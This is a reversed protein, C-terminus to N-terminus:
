PPTVKNLKDQRVSEVNRNERKVTWRQSGPDRPYLEIPQAIIVAFEKPKAGKQTFVREDVKFPLDVGAQDNPVPQVPPMAAQQRAAREIRAQAEPPLVPRMAQAQPQARHRAEVHGGGHRHNRPGQQPNAPAPHTAAIEEPPQPFEHGADDCLARLSRRANFEERYTELGMYKYASLDGTVPTAAEIVSKVQPTQSWVINESQAKTVQTMHDVFCDILDKIEHRKRAEGSSAVELTKGIKFQVAGLGLPKGGGLRHQRGLEQTADGLTLAWLIGGLEIPSLNFFRLNTKFVTNASLPKLETKINDGVGPPVPQSITTSLVPWQKLQIEPRPHRESPRYAAFPEDDRYELSDQRVYLGFYSAKPALLPTPKINEVPTPTVEAYAFDFSARRRLSFADFDGAEGGKSGFILSAFDLDNYKNPQPPENLKVIHAKSSNALMEHTSLPMALKFMQATGIAKIKNSEELYFVPVPEGKRYAERWFAWNPNAVSKKGTDPEHILLFDRWVDSDVPDSHYDPGLACTRDPSHFVFERAKSRLGTGDAAKGTIVLTGPTTGLASCRVYRILGPSHPHNAVQHVNIALALRTSLDTERPNIHEYRENADARNAAFDRAPGDTKGIFAKEIDQYSIRAVQCPIIKNQGSKDRVLWGPKSKTQIPPGNRGGGMSMRKRYHITATASSTLNRFSFRRDQIDPGLKAFTVKDLIARIAGQLSTDPIVYVGSPLKFPEVVTAADEGKTRDGGVIIPTKAVITIPIVGTLGNEIPVDHSVRSGWEPFYVWRNIPSFRFPATLAM